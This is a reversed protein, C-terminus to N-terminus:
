YNETLFESNAEYGDAQRLLKAPPNKANKASFIWQCFRGKIRFNYSIAKDGAPQM